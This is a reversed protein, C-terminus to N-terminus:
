MAIAIVAMAVSERRPDDRDNLGLEACAADFAATIATVDDVDFSHQQLLKRIPMTTGEGLPPSIRRAGAILTSRRAVHSPLFLIRFLIETRLDRKGGNASLATETGGGGSLPRGLHVGTRRGWLEEAPTWIPREPAGQAVLDHTRSM